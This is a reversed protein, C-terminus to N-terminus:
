KAVAATQLAKRPFMQERNAIDYVLMAIVASAQML